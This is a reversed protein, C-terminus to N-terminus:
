YNMGINRILLDNQIEIENEDIEEQTKTFTNAFEMLNKYPKAWKMNKMMGSNSLDISIDHYQPNQFNKYIISNPNNLLIQQINRLNLWPISSLNLSQLCHLNSVIAELIDLENLKKFENSFARKNFYVNSDSLYYPVLEFKNSKGPHNSPSSSLVNEVLSSSNYLKSKYIIKFDSSLSISSLNLEIINPCLDILYLMYGIPLDKSHSYKLLFKNTYPHNDSFPRNLRLSKAFTVKKINSTSIPNESSTTSQSDSRSRKKSSRSFNFKLFDTITKITSSDLSSSSRLSKFVKRKTSNLTSISDVSSSSKTKSLNYSNLFSSGYLPDGRYKWDRWSAFAYEPLQLDNDFWLGMDNNNSTNTDNKEDQDLMIGPELNSLDLFRILEGNGMNERLSTVLQAVRYTSTLHPASYVIPKAAEYFLHNVYLCNIITKYDDTYQVIQSILEVPLQNITIKHCSSKLSFSSFADSDLKFLKKVPNNDQSSLLLSKYSFKPKDTIGRDNSPKSHNSNSLQISHTSRYSRYLSNKENKSRQLSSSRKVVSQGYQNYNDNVIYISNQYSDRRNLSPRYNSNNFSSTFLLPAPASGWVNNYNNGSNSRSSTLTM